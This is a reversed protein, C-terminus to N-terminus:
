INFTEKELYQTWCIFLSILIKPFEKFLQWVRLTENYTLSSGDHVFLFSVTVKWMIDFEDQAVEM